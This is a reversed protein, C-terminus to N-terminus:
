RFSHETWSLMHCVGSWFVRLVFFFFFFFFRLQQLLCLKIPSSVNDIPLMRLQFTKMERKLHIGSWFAFVRFGERLPCSNAWKQFCIREKNISDSFLSISGLSLSKGWLYIGSHGKNWASYTIEIQTWVQDTAFSHEVILTLKTPVGEPVQNYLGTGNVWKIRSVRLPYKCCTCVLILHPM